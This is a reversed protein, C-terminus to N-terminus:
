QRRPLACTLWGRFPSFCFGRFDHEYDPFPKKGVERENAREYDPPVNPHQCAVSLGAPLLPKVLRDPSLMARRSERCTKQVPLWWSMPIPVRFGPNLGRCIDRFEQIWHYRWREDECVFLFPLGSSASCGWRPSVASFGRGKHGCQRTRWIESRYGSGFRDQPGGRRTCCEGLHETSKKWM